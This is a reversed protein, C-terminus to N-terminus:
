RAHRRAHDRQRRGAGPRRRGALDSAPRRPAAAVRPYDHGGTTEQLIKTELAKVEAGLRLTEAEEVMALQWSVLQALLMGARRIEPSLYHPTGHHCAVLGWLRGERMISLSMSAGVRMNRLYEVHIPSVSRMSAVSLDIPEPSAQVLPVPTYDVDPILRELNRRYLERAQFPIDTAPFHLGLYSPLQAM